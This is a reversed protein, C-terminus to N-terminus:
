VVEKLWRMCDVEWRFSSSLGLGHGGKTYLHLEFPIEYKRLATAFMMSNEVPVAKDECTHWIFCPPTKESVGRECSMAELLEPLPNDRLLNQMSGQHASKGTSLIVPYCLIGFDPRLSVESDYQEWVTLAHAALHGGASSGMVGLKDPDVGFDKASIRITEIAALADELMEPHRHEPALRYKVVFCAVGEKVFHESYGKGEHEALGQYGGGPFIIIGIGTHNDEPIWCEIQPAPNTTGNKLNGEIIKKM